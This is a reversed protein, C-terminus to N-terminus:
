HGRSQIRIVAGAVKVSDAGRTFVAVKAAINDERRVLRRGARNVQVEFRKSKGPRLSFSKAGIRLKRSEARGPPDVQTELRLKARCTGAAAGPLKVRVGVAGSSLSTPRRLVRLASCSGLESFVCAEGESATFITPEEAPVDSPLCEIPFEDGFFEESFTELELSECSPSIVDDPDALGFDFDAGCNIADIVGDQARIEDEGAGADFGDTGLGGHLVDNGAGGVIQNDGGGGALADDGNGGLISDDGDEPDEDAPREGVLVDDGNEGRLTNAAASGTFNDPGSGGTLNEVDTSVSDAEGAEGDNAIGDIM